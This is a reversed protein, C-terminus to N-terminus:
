INSEFIYIDIISEPASNTKFDIFMWSKTTHRQSQEHGKLSTCFKRMQTMCPHRLLCLFLMIKEVWLRVFSLKGEEDAAPQPDVVLGTEDANLISFIQLSVVIVLTLYILPCKFTLSKCMARGFFISVSDFTPFGCVSLTNAFARMHACMHAFTHTHKHLLSYLPVGYVLITLITTTIYNWQKVGLM